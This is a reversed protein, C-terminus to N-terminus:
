SRCALEFGARVCVWLGDDNVQYRNILALGSLGSVVMHSGMRLPAMAGGGGLVVLIVSFFLQM